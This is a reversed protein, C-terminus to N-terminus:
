KLVSLIPGAGPVSGAVEQEAILREVSQGLGAANIRNAKKIIILIYLYIFLDISTNQTSRIEYLAWNM